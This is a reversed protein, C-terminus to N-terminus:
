GSLAQFRPTWTTSFPWTEQIWKACSTALRITVFGWIKYRNVLSSFFRNCVLSLMLKLIMIVFLYYMRAICMRYNRRSKRRSSLSITVRAAAFLWCTKGQKRVSSDGSFLSFNDNDFGSPKRGPMDWAVPPLLRRNSNPKSLMFSKKLRKNLNHKLTLMFM